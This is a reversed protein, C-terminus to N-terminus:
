GEVCPWGLIRAIIDTPSGGRLYCCCSFGCGESILMRCGCVAVLSGEYWQSDTLGTVLLVFGKDSCGAMWLGFGTDQVRGNM